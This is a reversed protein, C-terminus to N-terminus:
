APCTTPRLRGHRVGIQAPSTPRRADPVIARILGLRGTRDPGPRANRTLVLRRLGDQVLTLAAVAATDARLIRPGLSLRLHRPLALLARRETDDFGGEPGIMVACGSGQDPSQGSAADQPIARLTARLAARLAAIPDAIEADEDCFVMLRGAPWAELLGELRIPARIEPVSLIGANNPPRSRM